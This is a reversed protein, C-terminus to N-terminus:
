KPFVPTFARGPLGTSTPTLDWDPPPPPTQTPVRTRTPDIKHKFYWAVLDPQEQNSFHPDKQAITRLADLIRQRTEDDSPDDDPNFPRLGSRLYQVAGNTDTYGNAKALTEVWEVVYADNIKKQDYMSEISGITIAPYLKGDKRVVTMSGRLGNKLNLFLEEVTYYGHGAAEIRLQTSSKQYATFSDVVHKAGFSLGAVTLLRFFVKLVKERTHAPSATEKAPANRLQEGTLHM